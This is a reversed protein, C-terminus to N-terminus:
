FTVIKNDVSPPRVKGIIIAAFVGFSPDCAKTTGLLVVLEALIIIAATSLM